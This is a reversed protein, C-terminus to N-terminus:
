LAIFVHQSCNRPCTAPKRPFRRRVDQSDNRSSPGKANVVGRRADQLVPIARAYFRGVRDVDSPVAEPNRLMSSSSSAPRGQRRVEERVCQLERDRESPTRELEQLERAQQQQCQVLREKHYPNNLHNDQVFDQCADCRFLTSNNM